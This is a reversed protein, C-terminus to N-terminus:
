LALDIIGSRLKIKPISEKHQMHKLVFFRISAHSCRRGQDWCAAVRCQVHFNEVSHDAIMIANWLQHLQAPLSPTIVGKHDHFSATKVIEHAAKALRCQRVFAKPTRMGASGQGKIGAYSRQAM